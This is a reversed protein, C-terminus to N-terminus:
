VQALLGSQLAEMADMAHCPLCLSVAPLHFNLLVLEIKTEWTTLVMYVGLIFDAM